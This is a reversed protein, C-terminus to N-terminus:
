TRVLSGYVTTLHIGFGLKFFWKASKRLPNLNASRCRSNYDSIITPKLKTKGNCSVKETKKYLANSYKVLGALGYNFHWRRKSDYKPFNNKRKELVYLLIYIWIGNKSGTAM